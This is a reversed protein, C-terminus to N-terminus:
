CRSSLLLTESFEGRTELIALAGNEVQKLFYEQFGNPPGSLYISIAKHRALTGLRSAVHGAVEGHFPYYLYFCNGASLDVDRVDAHVFRANELFFFDRSAEAAQVYSQGLEIGCVSTNTSAAFTLASKGSGSGLDFVVDGAGPQVTSLFDFIRAARSAMNVTGEPPRAHTTTLREVRFVGDLFDDAPTGAGEQNQSFGRSLWQSFFDPPSMSGDRFTEALLGRARRLAKKLRRQRLRFDLWDARAAAQRQFDVSLLQRDVQEELAQTRSLLHWLDGIDGSYQLASQAIDLVREQWFPRATM